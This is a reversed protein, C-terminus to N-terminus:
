LEDAPIYFAQKATMVGHGGAAGDKQARIEATFASVPMRLYLAQKATMIDYNGSKYLKKLILWNQVTFFHRGAM